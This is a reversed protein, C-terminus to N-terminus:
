GVRFRGLRLGGEDQRHEQKQQHQQLAGDAPREGCGDHLAPHRHEHGHEHLRQGEEDQPHQQRRRDRHEYRRREEGPRQRLPGHQRHRDGPQRARHQRAALARRHRHCARQHAPADGRGRGEGEEEGGRRDVRDHQRRGRDGEGAVRFHDEGTEDAAQQHRAHHAPQPLAEAAGVPQARRLARVVLALALPGGEPARSRHEGQLEERPSQQQGTQGGAIVVGPADAGQGRLVDVADALRGGRHRGLRVCWHTRTSGRSAGRARCSRLIVGM